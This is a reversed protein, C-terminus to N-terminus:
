GPTFRTITLPNFRFLRPSAYPRLLPSPTYALGKRMRRLVLAGFTMMEMVAPQEGICSRRGWGFPGYALDRREDTGEFRSPDWEFPRPWYDPDFHAGVINPAIIWGAPVRYGGIAVDHDCVRFLVGAPPWRLSEKVACGLLPMQRISEISIPTGRAELAAQEDVLRRRWGDSRSLFYLFNVIGTISTEHGAFLLTLASDIVQAETLREGDEAGRVMEGLIDDHPRAARARVAAEVYARVEALASMGDHYWHALRDRVPASWWPFRDFSAPFFITGGVRGWRSALWAVDAESAAGLVLHAIFGFTLERLIPRWAFPTRAAACADLSKDALELFLPQAAGIARGNLPRRTIARLLRHTAGFAANFGEPFKETVSPPFGPKFEYEADEFIRRIERPDSVVVTPRDRFLLGDLRVVKSRQRRSARDFLGYSDAVFHLTSALGNGGGPPTPLHDISPRPRGPTAQLDPADNM